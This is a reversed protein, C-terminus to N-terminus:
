RGSSRGRRRGGPLPQQASRARCPGRPPRGPAAAAPGACWPSARTASVAGNLVRDKRPPETTAAPEPLAQIGPCPLRGLTWRMSRSTTLAHRIAGISVIGDGLTSAELRPPTHTYDPLEKSIAPILARASEAVAGAIVVLEPNVLTSLSGIIRAMRHAVRDLVAAAAADGAAAASFVMEATLAGPDGGCRERMSSKAGKDLAERAWLVAYHAIGSTDGVGDLNDLYGLEGFGGLQGHLLRGSELVGSGLRDSALMVVLNDVGQATGRWREALAALNADNELLVHWGHREAVIGRVDFSKWFEQATLVEGDRSVPAAVGVSVALVSDASAGAEDLAEAAIRDLVDAREDAAVSYAHRFPM